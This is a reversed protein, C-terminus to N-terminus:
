CQWWWGQICVYRGGLFGDKEVWVGLVIPCEEGLVSPARYPFVMESPDLAAWGGKPGM